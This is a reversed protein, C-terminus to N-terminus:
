TNSMQQSVQGPWMDLYFLNNVRLDKSIHTDTHDSNLQSLKDFIVCGLRTVHVWAYHIFIKFFPVVKMLKIVFKSIWGM